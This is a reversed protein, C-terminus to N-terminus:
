SNTNPFCNWECQQKKTICYKLVLTHFMMQKKGSVVTAVDQIILNTKTTETGSCGFCVEKKSKEVCQHKRDQGADM